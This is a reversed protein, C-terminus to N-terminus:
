RRQAETVSRVLDASLVPMEREAVAVVDDGHRELHMPTAAPSIELRGDAEILEVKTGPTLGLRDRLDKPVVIRGGGDITAIM